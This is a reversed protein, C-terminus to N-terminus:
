CRDDDFTWEHSTPVLSALTRDASALVRGREDDGFRDWARYLAGIRPHSGFRSRHRVLFAWFLANFPCAHDGSREKVRYRCSACHDSMRDIYAGSAAYPKTTFGDDAFLAMGHVNPLEVWEYADVFGAWFWHSLALPEIGALLAFNGLVMLRQIHHAYGTEKVQSVAERMCRMETREPEWYFDPLPRAAGLANARRMKPMRVWYMARVYERWGLIQRLLGEASALPMRGAGHEAVVRECVERPSLLGLNMAPALRTHWLFREGGIMADQYRGFLAAREAFFHDLETLAGARTVPWDFGDLDGWGHGWARVREMCDRTIADPAHRILPPPREAGPPERNDTDFSLKGGLPKGHEDMLWGTKKRMHAYFHEMRLVQRGEAWRHLEERTLLFHRGDGGDDFLELDVGLVRDRRAIRLAREMGWERPRMAVVRAPRRRAVVEKLGDIYSRANIVEVDFGDARLEAAFHHMASLVLVLKQKHYPLASSKARSEVLLVPGDDPHRPVCPLRRDLDWPGVFHLTMTM